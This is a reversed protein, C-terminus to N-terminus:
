NFNFKEFRKYSYEKGQKNVIRLKNKTADKVKEVWMSEPNQYRLILEGSSGDITFSETAGNNKFSGDLQPSVKTRKGSNGAVTIYDIVTSIKFEKVEGQLTTVKKIEWYGSLNEKLEKTNQQCSFLSTFIVLLLSSIVYKKM